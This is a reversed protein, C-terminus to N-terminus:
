LDDEPLLVDIEPERLLEGKLAVLIVEGFGGVLPYLSIEYRFEQINMGMSELKKIVLGAPLSHFGQDPAEDWCHPENRAAGWTIIMLGDEKLNNVMNTLSLEWYPDHELMSASFIVDAKDPPHFDQALCVVDVNPAERWDIGTYICDKTLSKPLNEADNINASGFEYCTKNNFYSSYTESARHWFMINAPHM